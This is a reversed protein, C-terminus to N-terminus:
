FRDPDQLAQAVSRFSWPFVSDGRRENMRSARDLRSSATTALNWDVNVSGSGSITLDYSIYQSGILSNSATGSINMPAKAAYFTGSMNMNSGGSITIPASSTRNQFLSIGKYNGSTPPSITISGTGSINIPGNAGPDNYFMVGTGSISASGSVTLGGGNLYYIGPNLM